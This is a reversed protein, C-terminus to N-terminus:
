PGLGWSHDFNLRQQPAPVVVTAWPALYELPRRVALDVLAAVVAVAAVAGLAVAGLAVAGPAVAVVAVADVVPVAKAPPAPVVVTAWPALYELPRRV